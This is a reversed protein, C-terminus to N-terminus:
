CDFACRTSRFRKIKPVQRTWWRIDCRSIPPEIIWTVVGCSCVLWSDKRGGLNIVHVWTKASTCKCGSILAEIRVIRYRRNMSRNIITMMMTM